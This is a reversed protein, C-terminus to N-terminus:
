TTIIRCIIIYLIKACIAIKKYVIYPIGNPGPSSGNPRKKLVSWYEKWGPSGTRFPHIPPPPRNMGPLPEYSTDRFEDSYTRTFYDECTDSDFDPVGSTSKNFLNKAFRNRDANFSKQNHFM